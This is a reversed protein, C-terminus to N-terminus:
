TPTSTPCVKLAFARQRTLSSGVAQDASSVLTYEAEDDVCPLVEKVAEEVSGAEEVSMEM